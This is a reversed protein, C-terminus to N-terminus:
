NYSNRIYAVESLSNRLETDEVETLLNLFRSYNYDSDVFADYLKQKLNFGMYSQQLREKLESVVAEFSAKQIKVKISRGSPIIASPDEIEWDLSQATEKWSYKTTAVKDGLHEHLDFSVDQGPFVEIEINKPLVKTDSMYDPNTVVISGQRVFVPLTDIKRYTKLRTAGDYPLHTFYDVWKGEPLWTDSSATQTTKDHPKTIPSVLMSPGFAYENKAQYAEENDPWIYYLPRCIPIGKTHTDFNASDIYPLLSHRLRLFKEQSEEFDKRYNWPEKGSFINNSSHLRNIPSFVGFQLWRTALEGDFSGKM